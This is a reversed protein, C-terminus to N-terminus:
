ENLTKKSHKGVPFDPVLIARPLLNKQLRPDRVTRTALRGYWRQLYAKMLKLKEQQSGSLHNFM